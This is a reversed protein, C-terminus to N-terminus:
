AGEQVGQALPAVPHRTLVADGGVHDEVVASQFGDGSQPWPRQVVEAADEPDARLFQFPVALRQEGDYAVVSVDPSLFACMPPKGAAGASAASRVEPVTPAFLTM